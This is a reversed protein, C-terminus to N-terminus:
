TSRPGSDTIEASYRNPWKKLLEAETRLINSNPHHAVRDRMLLILAIKLNVVFKDKESNIEEIPHDTDPGWLHHPYFERDDQLTLRRISQKLDKNPSNFSASLNHAFFNRVGALGKLAQRSNDDIAGLAFLLDIQPTTDGLPRGHKLLHRAPKEDIFRHLLTKEVAHELLSGGVVTVILDSGTPKAAEDMLESIAQVSNAADPAFIAWTM